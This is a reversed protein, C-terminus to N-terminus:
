PSPTKTETSQSPAQEPKPAHRDLFSRVSRFLPANMKATAGTEALLVQDCAEDLWLSTTADGDRFQLRYVWQPACDPKEDWVFFANTLFARRIYNLDPINELVRKGTVTLKEGGPPVVLESDVADSLKGIRWVEMVPANRMRGAHEAGWLAVAKNSHQYRYWVAYGTAALALTFIAVIVYKGSISNPEHESPM